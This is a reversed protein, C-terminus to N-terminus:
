NESNFIARDLWVFCLFQAKPNPDCPQTPILKFVHIQSQCTKNWDQLYSLNTELSVKRSFHQWFDLFSIISPSVANNQLGCCFDSWGKIWNAIYFQTLYSFNYFGATDIRIFINNTPQNTSNKTKIAVSHFSIFSIICLGTWILTTQRVEVRDIKMWCGLGDSFQGGVLKERQM